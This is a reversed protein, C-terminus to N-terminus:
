QQSLAVDLRGVGSVGRGLVQQVTSYGPKTVILLTTNFGVVGSPSCGFDIRYWGDAGTTRDNVAAGVIPRSTSADVVVGYRAACGGADVLIDGRTAYASGYITGAGVADVTVSITGPGSLQIAYAGASDTTASGHGAAGSVFVLKNPLAAGTGYDAVVGRLTFSSEATASSPASPDTDSCGTACSLVTSLVALCALRPQIARRITM